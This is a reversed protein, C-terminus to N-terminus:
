AAVLAHFTELRLVRVHVDDQACDVWLEVLLRVDDGAQAVGAVPHVGRGELPVAGKWQTQCPEGACCAPKKMPTTKM